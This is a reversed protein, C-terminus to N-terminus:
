LFAGCPAAAAYDIIIALPGGATLRFRLELAFDRSILRFFPQEAPIIIISNLAVPRPATQSACKCPTCPTAPELGTAGIKRAKGSFYLLPANSRYLLQTLSRPSDTSKPGCCIPFSRIAMPAVMTKIPSPIITKPWSPRNLSGPSICNPEFCQRTNKGIVVQM